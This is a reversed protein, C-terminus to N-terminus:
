STAEAGETPGGFAKMQIEVVPCDAAHLYEGDKRHPECQCIAAELLSAYRSQAALEPEAKEARKRWRKKGDEHHQITRRLEPLTSRELFALHEKYSDLERRLRANEAQLEADSQTAATPFDADSM